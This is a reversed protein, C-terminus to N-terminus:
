DVTGIGVNVLMIFMFLLMMAVAGLFFTCIVGAVLTKGVSLGSVESVLPCYFVISMVFGCFLVTFKLLVVVALLLPDDGVDTPDPGTLQSHAISLPANAILTLMWPVGSWVLALRISRQTAAGGFIKSILGLLLSGFLLFFGSLLLGLVLTWLLPLLAKVPSALAVRVVSSVGMALALGVAWLLLPQWFDSPLQRDVLQRITVRPRRWISRWPNLTDAELSTAPTVQSAAYPNNSDTPSDPSAKSM